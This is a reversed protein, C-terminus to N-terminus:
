HCRTCYIFITPVNLDVMMVIFLARGDARLLNRLRGGAAEECFIELM